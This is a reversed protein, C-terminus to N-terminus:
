RRLFKIVPPLAIAGAGREKEAVGKAFGLAYEGFEGFESVLGNVKVACDVGEGFDVAFDANVHHWCNGDGLHFFGVVKCSIEDDRGRRPM